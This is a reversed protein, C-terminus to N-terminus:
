GGLGHSEFLRASDFLSELPMCSMGGSRTRQQGAGAQMGQIFSFKILLFSETPGM